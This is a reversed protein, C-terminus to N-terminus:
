DFGISWGPFSVEGKVLSYSRRNQSRRASSLQTKNQRGGGNLFLLTDDAYLLHSIQQCGRAVKYPQCLGHMVLRKLGRGLVEAAIIFLSPSLPDGQRLGKSSKFFGALGGNILMEQKFRLFLEQALVISESISRGQIFAGQEPSIISPLLQSLRTAIVSALIKYFRSLSSSKPILCILSTSVARPLKGGQFLFLAAKHLDQSVINWCASFFTGSFGDPSPAGDASISLVATQIEVLTLPALLMDNQEQSILPPIVDFIDSSTANTMSSLLQLFHLVAADRIQVQDALVESSDLM